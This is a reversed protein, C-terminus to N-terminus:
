TRINHTLQLIPLLISAVLFGVFIAMIVIIVPEILSVMADVTLEVDEEYTDSVKLLMSELEGSRQGLETMHILLPPFVGSEKLPQALDKGRRVSAKVDDLVDEIVRNQVVSKVVDLGVMMTLGSQLMTGLTRGFRACIMKTQLSGYLPAKLKFRDWRLRGEPRSVWARWLILVCAIGLLIAWWFSGLFHSVGIMIKTLTPLDAGQKQFLATLRPVIAVMLFVIVTLGFLALFCPYTLSSMVKKNVRVQREQIDAIRFLVQELAGSAEGARVMNIFLDTFVKPHQAFSDALTAGENVRDRVEFLIKRLRPNATQELLASLSAVLPMGAQLLVALQRTMLSIDRMSVRNGFGVRVQGESSAASKAQTEEVKTPYLDQERLKRRAAAATDADIVGKVNKGSKAIAAYEYVGM